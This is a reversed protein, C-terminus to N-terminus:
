EAGLWDPAGPRWDPQWYFRYDEAQGVSLYALVRRPCQGARLGDVQAATLEGDASGDISYDIVALDFESGAIQDLGPRDLWYVWNHVAAWPRASAPTAAAGERTALWVGVLALGGVLATLGRRRASLLLQEARRDPGTVLQGPHLRLPSRQLLLGRAV